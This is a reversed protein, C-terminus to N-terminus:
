LMSGGPSIDDLPLPCINNFARTIIGKKTNLQAVRGISDGGYIINTVRGMLWLLPPQTRDKVLVLAGIKLKDMSQRWKGKTQLLSVYELSYRQWFHQRLKEVRQYRQLRNVEKDLLNAQATALLPRGILFHSPSLYSLDSPDTSLPTLPRSNLVAEIQALCTAMEEYDFHTLSLVRRLHHKVSKVAAEWIGGFHPSYAPIYKFNIGQEALQAQVYDVSGKLFQALENSAGIFTSANDSYITEPKGRRSIFRNLCALYAEKTLDTVLELHVAKVAFCIFVCIYSKTLRSGKGKRNLILVPGAYDVGTTLFPSVLHTRENPLDGMIPQVSTAKFRFCRVCAHVTKRALNRGDITWYNQRINSLLLQPGAHMLVKHHLLFLTKTIHHKACLVIPHKVDYSYYSNRLRGGVRILDDSDLFPSLSNLKSRKPLQKNNKLLNYEELFMERQAHHLVIKRSSNIENLTLHNHQTKTRCNHIFRKVYALIRIIKNFSSHKHIIHLIRNNTHDEAKKPIFTHLSTDSTSIDLAKHIEPIRIIAEHLYEPGTWWLAATSISDAKVGRSVLDAPNSKSPVYNWKHGNTTEQIEGVRNRVFQVTQSSSSSLWGLVITSDSWFWHQHINITLANVVKKWLRTALLAASLELRPITCKPKIPAVKNKSTLLRVNVLGEHDITRVYICGGYARESADSFTHLEVLTPSSCSVFRPIKISNLFHLSNAIDLFDKKIVDPAESDWDCKSIWLAQIILKAMVVCPGVLGLPDFIQSIISIINRKTLKKNTNIEILFNLNDSTSDWYLGLTKSPSNDSMNLDLCKESDSEIDTIAHLVDLSNSQWKRLNMKASSLTDKVGKCVTILSEISDSGTLFDDVYFDHKIAHQVKVNKCEDALSVLCKTALYPASATGYTVTNLTYTQLPEHSHFRYIIQQLSRQNPEIYITRYMKEIDASVVLKHSRFRILISFIDDQITPGVMQISNFSKKNSTAASADFVVRLKTTTSDRLVGHHPFYINPTNSTHKINKTLTMHGLDIYEKIFQMYLNKLNLDRDLRRELSLFRVKALNYSDGLVEPTEKLPITVIFRGDKDRRTTDKFIKECAREELSMSHQSSVSDLQWFRTLSAEDNQGVFHCFNNSVEKHHVNNNSLCGSLLWGLKSDRLKPQHKGLDIVSLGLVNWFVEAGVLIDIESPVNFSPDALQINKPIPIHSVDIYSSPLYKTIEAVMYCSITEKYGGYYSEIVLECSESILSSQSNIGNVTSSVPKVLLNLKRSLSHTVFNATSGNDLLLRATHLKNNVDRVRVVATCLLTFTQIHSTPTVGTSLAITTGTPEKTSDHLLTNHKMRCYKCHTLKCFQFGHGPKLCNRCLNLESVKRIRSAVDLKKFNECSFIFHPQSCMPCKYAKQNNDTYSVQAKNKNTDSFTSIIGKHKYKDQLTELLDARSTIFKIFQQLVPSGGLGNRYEEWERNTISDLKKTMIFIILTDWHDTPQGLTALARLNKNTIDVMNRLMHSSEKQIPEINFLNQIHNNVLLRENDYRETLLQWGLQYNGASFDLAQITLAATGKLAARLYHFKNIDSISKNNHILSLYTDRFELWHQYDGDFHPLDIKPLRVFDHECRDSKQVSLDSGYSSRRRQTSLHSNLMVQAESVLRFYIGDFAERDQYATEPPDTLAEIESQLSEFDGYLQEIKRFRCELEKIQIDSLHEGTAKEKSYFRVWAHSQLM